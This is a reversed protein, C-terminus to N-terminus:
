DEAFFDFDADEADEVTYEAEIIEAPAEEVQQKKPRGRKPKEPQPTAEVVAPQEEVVQAPAAEEAQPQEQAPTMDPIDITISEGAETEEAIANNIQVSNALNVYGSNLLSRLVTKKFMDEQAGGVDYWRSSNSLKEVQAPPLEGNILKNYTDLDFAKSYRNAHKLLQPITWYESRFFGNRLEIYAMYGIVPHEEAEEETTYVSFDFRPRKTRPDRGIYEGERVEVCDIDKVEGTSIALAMMGKYGLIFSAKQGYPVVYYGTGLILGMGEGRLAAAVISAPECRQLQYSSAVVSILTGTFRAASKEDPLSKKILNQLNNQMIAQSFTRPKQEPRPALQNNGKM